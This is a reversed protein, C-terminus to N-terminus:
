PSVGYGERMLMLAQELDGRWRPSEPELARARELEGFADVPFGWTHLRQARQFIVRAREHATPALREALDLAGLAQYEMQVREYSSRSVPDLRGLRPRTEQAANHLAASYDHLVRWDYSLDHALRRFYPVSEQHRGAQHLALATAAVRDIPLRDAPHPPPPLAAPVRSGPPRLAFLVLGLGALGSLMWAWRALTSSKM